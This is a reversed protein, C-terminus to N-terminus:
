KTFILFFSALSVLLYCTVILFSFSNLFAFQLLMNGSLIQVYRLAEYSIIKGNDDRFSYDM